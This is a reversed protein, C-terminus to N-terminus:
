RRYDSIMEYNKRPGVVTWRASWNPWGSFDYAVRYSDPDCWHDAEPCPQPEIRHFFRGDDFYVEIGRAGQRWLYSREAWLAPGSGLRMEGAEHYVLGDADARFEATGVFHGTQGSLADVIRRTLKWARAFEQLEPL